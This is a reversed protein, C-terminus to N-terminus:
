GSLQEAAQLVAQAATPRTIVKSFEDHGLNQYDEFSLKKGGCTIPLVGGITGITNNLVRLRKYDCDSLYPSTVRIYPNPQIFCTSNIMSLNAGPEHALVYCQNVWLYLENVHTMHNGGYNAKWGRNGYILVNRYFNYQSSGDDTDFGEQNAYTGLVLNHHINRVKPIVTANDETGHIYPVRDWSNFAAHDGSERVANLMVNHHINDGGLFGDNMNIMSRPGNMMVNYSIEADGSVAHFYACSQKQFVGLERFLNRTIVTGRPQNGSRGDPGLPWPLQRTCNENLCHGTYGWSVIASYGIWAFECHEIRAGRNRGTMLVGNGDIRELKSHLLTFNNTNQIIIAASRPLAWDGGSPMEHPDLWVHATDRLEINRIMISDTNSVNFLVKTRTARFVRQVPGDKGHGLIESNETSNFVYYLKRSADDYYWENEEDLEALVNEIYWQAAANEGEGGQSGGLSPDFTCTKTTYNWSQVQWTWTYWRGNGRWGVVVGRNQIQEDDYSSSHPLVTDDWTLGSPSKHPTIQRPPRGACWYGFAPSLNECSGGMGMHYEGWDGEGTWRAGPGNQMPWNVSPWDEATVVIDTPPGSRPTVAKHWVTKNEIWGKIYIGDGMVPDVSVFTEGSLEPDGNPYRARVARRNDVRLGDFSAAHSDSLTTVWVNNRVHEWSSPNLNLDEAGTVVANEGDVSEIVLGSLHRGQISLTQSVFHPCNGRLKITSFPESIARVARAITRFASQITAGDNTDSGNEADVYFTSSSTETPKRINANASAFSQSPPLRWDLHDQFNPRDLGCKQLQLADFLLPFDGYSSLVTKGTEYTFQRFACDTEVSVGPPSGSPGDGPSYPSALAGLAPGDKGLLGLERSSIAWLGLTLNVVLTALCLVRRRRWLYSHSQRFHSELKDEPQLGDYEPKTTSEQLLLPQGLGSELM